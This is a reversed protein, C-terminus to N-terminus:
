RPEADPEEATRHEVAPSPPERQKPRPERNRGPDPRRVDGPRQRLGSTGGCRESVSQDSEGPADPRQEVTPVLATTFDFGSQNYSDITLPAAYMGFGARLVTKTNIQFAAGLRAQINNRDATYFGRNNADAFVMGGRARFSAAGIEPIPDAAYAARAAADIPNTSTQDFLRVNRNFRETTPSEYEYRVGLNLTLRSAVKYDDQFYLGHYINQNSRIAARQISSNNAPFGLLLAALEQGAPQASTTLDNERTFDTRFRYRGAVDAPPASNERYIRFDYGFRM